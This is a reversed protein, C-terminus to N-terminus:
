GGLDSGAPACGRSGGWVVSVRRKPTTANQGDSRKVFIFPKALRKLPQPTWPTSGRTATWLCRFEVPAQLRLRWSMKSVECCRLSSHFISPYFSEENNKLGLPHLPAIPFGQVCRKPTTAYQGSVSQLGFTEGVKEFAAPDLSLTGPCVGCLPFNLFLSPPVHRILDPPLNKSKWLPEPLCASM